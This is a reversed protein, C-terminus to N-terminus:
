VALKSFHACRWYRPLIIDFNYASCRDIQYAEM